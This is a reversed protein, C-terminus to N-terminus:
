PFPRDKTLGLDNRLREGTVTGWTAGHVDGWEAHPGQARRQRLDADLQGVRRVHHGAHADHRSHARGDELSQAVPVEDLAEM